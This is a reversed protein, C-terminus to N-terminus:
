QAFLRKPEYTKLLETISYSFASVFEKPASAFRSLDIHASDYPVRKVNEVHYLMSNDSNNSLVCLGALHAFDSFDVVDFGSYGQEFNKLDYVTEEGIVQAGFLELLWRVLKFGDGSSKDDDVIVVKEGKLPSFISQLFTKHLGDKSSKTSGSKHSLLKIDNSLILGNSFSEKEPHLLYGIKFMRGSITESQFVRHIHLNVDVSINEDLSVTKVRDLDYRQSLVEKFRVIEQKYNSVIVKYGFSEYWSILLKRLDDAFMKTLDNNPLFCSLDDKLFM